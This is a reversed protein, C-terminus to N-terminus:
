GPTAMCVVFLAPGQARFIYLGAIASLSEKVYRGFFQLMHSIKALLATQLVIQIDPAAV